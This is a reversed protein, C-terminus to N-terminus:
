KRKQRVTKKDSTRIKDAPPKPHTKVTTLNNIHQIINRGAVVASGVLAGAFQSIESVGELFESKKNKKM